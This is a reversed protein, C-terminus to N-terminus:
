KSLVGLIEEHEALLSQERETLQGIAAGLNEFIRARDLASLASPLQTDIAFLPRASNFERLSQAGQRFVVVFTNMKANYGNVIVLPSLPSPM